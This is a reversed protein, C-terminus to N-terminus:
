LFPVEFVTKQQVSALHIYRFVILKPCVEQFKVVVERSGSMRSSPLRQLQQRAVIPPWSH